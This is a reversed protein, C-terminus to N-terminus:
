TRTEQALTEEGRVVLVPCAARRVVSEAVSGILARTLGKRGHSGMVILHFAGDRATALIETVPDGRQVLTQVQPSAASGTGDLASGVVHEARARVGALQEPTAVGPPETLAYSLPHDVYLILVSAGYHRALDAACTVAENAEPSGDFPVLIKRVPQM